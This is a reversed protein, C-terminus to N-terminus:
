TMASVNVSAKAFCNGSLNEHSTLSDECVVIGFSSWLATM